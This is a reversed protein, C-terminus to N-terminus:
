GAHIGPVVYTINGMDTSGTVIAEEEQRSHFQEGQDKMHQIYTEALIENTFVDIIERRILLLGKRM